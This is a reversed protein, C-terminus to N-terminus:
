HGPRPASRGSPGDRVENSQFHLTKLVRDRLRGSLDLRLMWEGYMELEITAAYTGPTQGATARVPRVNHAMPMSPMDAGVMIDVGSLPEGTRADLLRITCDYQLSKETPKCAIDAKARTQAGAPSTGILVAIAAAAFLRVSRYEIMLPKERATM